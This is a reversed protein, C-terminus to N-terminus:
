PRVFEHLSGWYVLCSLDLWCRPLIARGFPYTPPDSRVRTRDRPDISRRETYLVGCFTLFQYPAHSVADQNRSPSCFRSVYGRSVFIRTTTYLVERGCSSASGMRTRDGRFVFADSM